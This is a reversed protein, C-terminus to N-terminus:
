HLARAKLKTERPTEYDAPLVLVTVAISGGSYERELALQQEVSETIVEISLLPGYFDPAEAALAMVNRIGRGIVETSGATGRTTVQIKVFPVRPLARIMETSIAERQRYRRWHFFFSDFYFLLRVGILTILVVMVYGAVTVCDTLIHPPLALM